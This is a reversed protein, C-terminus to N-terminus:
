IEFDGSIRGQSPIKAAEARQCLQEITLPALEQWLKHSMDQWMPLIVKQSLPSTSPTLHDIGQGARDKESNKRSKSPIDTMLAQLIMGLTINRRERALRYGGHPGRVGALIQARTLEQLIPELSRRSIAARNTIDNSSVLKGGSHWAIDLVIEIAIFARTPLAILKEPQIM